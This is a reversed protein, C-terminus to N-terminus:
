QQPTDQKCVNFAERLSSNMEKLIDYESGSGVRGYYETIQLAADAPMNELIRTVQKEQLVNFL